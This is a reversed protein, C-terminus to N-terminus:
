RHRLPSEKPTNEAYVDPANNNDGSKLLDTAWEMISLADCSVESKASGATSSASSSTGKKADSNKNADEELSFSSTKASAVWDYENFGDSADVGEKGIRRSNSM